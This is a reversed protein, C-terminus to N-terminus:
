KLLAEIGDLPGAGMSRGFRNLFWAVGRVWKPLGSDTLDVMHRIKVNRTDIAELLFTETVTGLGKSKSDFRYEFSILTEEEWAVIVGECQEVNSSMSFDASFRAGLGAGHTPTSRICKPNWAPMNGPDHIVLWVDSAHFNFTRTDVLKM